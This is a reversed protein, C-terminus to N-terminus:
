DHPGEALRAAQEWGPFTAPTFGKECLTDMVAGGDGYILTGSAWDLSTTEPQTRILWDYNRLAIKTEDTM